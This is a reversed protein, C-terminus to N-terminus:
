CALYPPSLGSACYGEGPRVPVSDSQGIYVYRSMSDYINVPEAWVPIERHGYISSVTGALERGACCGGQRSIGSPGDARATETDAPDPLLNAMNIIQVIRIEASKPALASLILFGIFLGRIM